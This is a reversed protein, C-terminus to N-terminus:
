DEPHLQDEWRKRPRRHKEERQTGSQIDQKHGKKRLTTAVITLATTNGAVYEDM